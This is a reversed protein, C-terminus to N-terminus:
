AGTFSAQPLHIIAALVSDGARIVACRLYIRLTPVHFASQPSGGCVVGVGLPQRGDLTRLVLNSDLPSLHGYYLIRHRHNIRQIHRCSIASTSRPRRPEPAFAVANLPGLHLGSPTSSQFQRNPTYAFQKNRKPTNLGARVCKARMSRM